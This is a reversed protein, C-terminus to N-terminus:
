KERVGGIPPPEYDDPVVYLRAKRQEETITNARQQCIPGRRPAEPAAGQYRDPASCVLELGLPFGPRETALARAFLTRASTLVKERDSDTLPRGPAVQRFLAGLYGRAASIARGTITVEVVACGRRVAVAERWARQVDPLLPM